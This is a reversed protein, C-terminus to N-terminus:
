TSLEEKIIKPSNYLRNMHTCVTLLVLLAHLQFRRSVLIRLPCPLHQLLHHAIPLRDPAGSAVHYQHFLPATVPQPARHALRLYAPHGPPWSPTRRALPVRATSALAPHFPDLAM